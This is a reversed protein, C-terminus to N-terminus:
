NPDTEEVMRSDLNVVPLLKEGEEFGLTKSFITTLSGPCDLIESILM